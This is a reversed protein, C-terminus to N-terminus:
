SREEAFSPTPPTFQRGLALRARALRSMVTGIPIELISAAERYGLGEVTVLLVVDRQGDPLAEVAAIVERLAADREPTREHAPESLRGTGDDDATPGSARRVSAARLENRWLNHCLRFLWSSLRGREDYRHRQELARVCTRQVLDEADTPHRALRLAFRWLGPLEDVLADRM